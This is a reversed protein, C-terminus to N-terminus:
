QRHSCPCNSALPVSGFFLPGM